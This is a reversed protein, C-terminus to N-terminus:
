KSILMAKTVKSNCYLKFISWYIGSWKCMYFMRSGTLQRERLENDSILMVSWDTCCIEKLDSLLQSLYPHINMSVSSQLTIQVLTVNKVRMVVWYVNTSVKRESNYILMQCFMYLNYVIYWKYGRTFHQNSQVSKQSVRHLLETIHWTSRCWSKHWNNLSYPFYQYFNMSKMLCFIVTVSETIVGNMSALCCGTLFTYLSNLLFGVLLKTASVASCVSSRLRWM